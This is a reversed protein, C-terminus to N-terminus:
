KKDGDIMLRLNELYWAGYELSRFVVDAAAVPMRFYKREDEFVLVVTKGLAHAYGIEFALDYGAPNDKELYAFLVDAAKIGALDAPTFQEEDLLKHNRPDIWTIGDLALRKKLKDQWGSRLGGALYVKM